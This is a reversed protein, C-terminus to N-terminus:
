KNVPGYIAQSQNKYYAWYRDGYSWHWYENKYNVFGVKSLAAGMIARNAKALSSIKSSDTISISCDIDQMWDEVKLGMDVVAGSAGVLYVDLAAGTSHPPVNKSGDINITPSVMRTTEIFIQTRTWSPNEAEIIAFAGM